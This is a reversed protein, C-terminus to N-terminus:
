LNKNARSNFIFELLKLLKIYKRDKSKFIKIQGKFQICIGIFKM